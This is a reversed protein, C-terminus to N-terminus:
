IEPKLGRIFRDLMEDDTIGHVQQEIRKMADIYPAVAGTQKCRALKDRARRHFDAPKFYHSMDTKLQQWTLMAFSYNQHRLWIAASKTLWMAALRAQAVQDNLGTLAFYNEASWIFTALIEHDMQGEFRAPQDLKIQIVM